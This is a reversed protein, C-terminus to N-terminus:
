FELYVEALTFALKGTTSSIKYMGISFMLFEVLKIVSQSVLASVFPERSLIDNGPRFGFLCYFLTAM